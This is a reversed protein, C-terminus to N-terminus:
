STQVKRVRSVIRAHGDDAESRSEYRDSLGALPGGFVVTEFWLTGNRGHPVPLKITSVDGGATSTHHLISM